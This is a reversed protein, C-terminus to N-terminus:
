GLPPFQRAGHLVYLVTIQASIPYGVRWRRVIAERHPPEVAPRVAIEEPMPWGSEPFRAVIGLRKDPLHLFRRAASPRERRLHAVVALLDRQAQESWEIAKTPM